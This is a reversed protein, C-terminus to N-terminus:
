LDEKKLQEYIPQWKAVQVKQIINTSKLRTPAEAEAATALMGDSIHSARAVIIGFGLGPYLLSNNAQGIIYTIGIYAFRNFPTGSAILPRGYTSTM